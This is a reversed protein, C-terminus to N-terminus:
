PASEPIEGRPVALPRKVPLFCIGDRGETCPQFTIVLQAPDELNHGALPVQVTGRWIPDGAEDQDTPPPLHGLRLTGRSALAVKFMRAKLHIGEPVTLSLVGSAVSLPVDKDPDFTPEALLTLPILVVLAMRWHGM